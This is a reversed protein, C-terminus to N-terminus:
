IKDVMNKRNIDDKISFSINNMESQQDSSEHTKLKIPVSGHLIVQGEHYTIKEVFELLFKRKSEFDTCKELQARASTCYQRTSIDISADKHLIPM